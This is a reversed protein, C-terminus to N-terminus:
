FPRCYYGGDPPLEDPPSFLGAAPAGFAQSCFPDLEMQKTMYEEALVDDGIVRKCILGMTRYVYAQMPGPADPNNDLYQQLALLAKDGLEKDQSQMSAM